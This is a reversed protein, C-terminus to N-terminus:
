CDHTKIQQTIQKARMIMAPRNGLENPNLDETLDIPKGEFMAGKDDPSVKLDGFIVNRGKVQINQLGTAQRVCQGFAAQRERNDKILADVGVAFGLVAFGIGIYSYAVVPLSRSRRSAQEDPVARFWPEVGMTEMRHNYAGWSEDPKKTKDSM